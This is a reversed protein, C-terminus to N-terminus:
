HLFLNKEKSIKVLINNLDNTNNYYDMSDHKYFCRIATNSKKPNLNEVFTSELDNSKYINLNSCTKYSLHNAIYLLTAGPSSETSTFKFSFSNITPNNTLAAYKTIRTETIAIVDFHKKTNSFIDELDDIKKNLSCANIHFLALSMQKCNMLIAINLIFLMKTTLTSDEPTPNNFQNVLNKIKQLNWNSSDKM